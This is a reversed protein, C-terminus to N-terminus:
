SNYKSFVAFWAALASLVAAIASIFAILWLLRDRNAKEAQIVRGQIIHDIHYGSNLASETISVGLEEARKLLADGQLLKRKFIRM